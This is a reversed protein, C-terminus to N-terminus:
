QDDEFVFYGKEADSKDLLYYVFGDLIVIPTEAAIEFFSLRPRQESRSDPTM